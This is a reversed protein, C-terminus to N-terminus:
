VSRVGSRNKPGPVRKQPRAAIFMFLGESDPSPDSSGLINELAVPWGWPDKSDAAFDAIPVGDLDVRVLLQRRLWYFSIFANPRLTAM